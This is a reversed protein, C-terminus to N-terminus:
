PSLILLQHSKLLFFDYGSAVGLGGLTRQSAHPREIHMANTSVQLRPLGRGNSTCTFPPPGMSFCADSMNGNQRMEVM